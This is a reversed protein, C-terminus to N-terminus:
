GRPPRTQPWEERTMAFIRHDAWDGAIELYRLALGEERFGVKELVRVSARNGPIVAAQIRHLALDTFGFEVALQVAETAIGQGNARQDVFYGLYANQFPGWTVASLAVQGVLEDGAAVIVLTYARDAEWASLIAALAREQAKPTFDNEDRRPVWPELFARNRVHIALLQHADELVPRRITTRAGTLCTRPTRPHPKPHAVPLRRPM